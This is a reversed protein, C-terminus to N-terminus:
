NKIRAHKIEEKIKLYLEKGITTERKLIYISLINNNINLDEPLDCEYKANWYKKNNILYYNDSFDLLHCKYEKKDIILYNRNRINYFEEDVILEIHNDQEQKIIKGQYIDYLNFKYFFVLIMTSMFLTTMIILWITIIKPMKRLYIIKSCNFADIKKYKAYM